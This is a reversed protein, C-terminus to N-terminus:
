QDDRETISPKDGSRNWTQPSPGINGHYFESCVDQSRPSASLGRCSLSLLSNKHIANILIRPKAEEQSMRFKPRGISSERKDPRHRAPGSNVTLWPFLRLCTVDEGHGEKPDSQLNTNNPLCCPLLSQLRSTPYMLWHHNSNQDIM